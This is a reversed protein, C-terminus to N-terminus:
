WWGWYGAQFIIMNIGFLIIAWEIASFNAEIRPKKGNSIKLDSLDKSKVM